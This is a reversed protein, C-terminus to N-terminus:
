WEPYFGMGFAASWRRGSNENRKTNGYGHFVRKQGLSNCSPQRLEFLISTVPECSYRSSGTVEKFLSAFISKSKKGTAVSPAPDESSPFYARTINAMPTPVTNFNMSGRPYMEERSCVKAFVRCYSLGKGKGKGAYPSGYECRLGKFDSDNRSDSTEAYVNSTMLAFVSLGLWIRNQIM